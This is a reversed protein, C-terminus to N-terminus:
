WSSRKDSSCNRSRIGASSVREIDGLALPDYPEHDFLDQNALLGDRDTMTDGDRRPWRLIAARRRQPLGFLRRATLTVKQTLPTYDGNSDFM